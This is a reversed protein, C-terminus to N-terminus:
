EGIRSALRIKQMGAANAADIVAVVTEHLANDDAMVILENRRASMVTRFVDALRGPDNQPEDDISIVNRDDIRVVISNNEFDELTHTSQSTGKQDPSPPPFAISKQVSFSATIMFFILLLFTMDVMPTLDMEDSELRRSRVQFGGADPEYEPQDTSMSKTAVAARDREPADASESFEDDRPLASKLSHRPTRDSVAESRETSAVSPVESIFGCAPCPVARGSMKRSISLLQRCSPCHFRVPM